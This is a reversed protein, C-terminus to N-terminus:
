KRAPKRQRKTPPEDEDIKEKKVAVEKEKGRKQASKKAEEKSTGAGDNEVVDDVDIASRDELEEGNEDGLAVIGKQIVFGKKTEIIRAFNKGDKTM